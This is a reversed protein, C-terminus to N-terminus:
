RITLSFIGVRYSKLCRERYLSAIKLSFAKRIRQMSLRSYPRVLSLTSSCALLFTLQIFCPSKNLSHRVLSGFGGSFLGSLILDLAWRYGENRCAPNELLLDLVMVLGVAGGGLISVATGLLSMAGNTGPPVPRLTTILIPKSKSLIGLESALTDGLCCGFQGLAVLLLIRSWGNGLQPSLACTQHADYIEGITALSAPLAITLYSPTFMARWVLCAVFAPLSNCM